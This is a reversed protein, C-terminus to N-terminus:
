LTKLIITIPRPSSNHTDFGWAFKKKIHCKLDEFRLKLIFKLIIKGEPEADLNNHLCKTLHTSGEEGM